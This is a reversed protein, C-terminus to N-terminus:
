IVKKQLSKVIKNYNKKTIRDNMFYLLEDMHKFLNQRRIVGGIIQQRTIVIYKYDIHTSLIKNIYFVIDAWKEIYSCTYLLECDLTKTETVEVDIRNLLISKRHKQNHNVM